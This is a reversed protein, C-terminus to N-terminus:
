TTTARGPPACSGAEDTRVPFAGAMASNQDVPTRANLDPGSPHPDATEVAPADTGGRMSALSSTFFVASKSLRAALQEVGAGSEDTSLRHLEVCRESMGVEV